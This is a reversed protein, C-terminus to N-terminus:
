ACCGATEDDAACPVVFRRGDYIDLVHVAAGHVYGALANDITEVVESVRSVPAGTDYARAVYARVNARSVRSRRQTSRVLRNLPISRTPQAKV